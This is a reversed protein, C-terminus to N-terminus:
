ALIEKRSVVAKVGAIAEVVVKEGVAIKVGHAAKASWVAGMVRIQGTGCVEDIAEIVIGAAGIIRDANTATKGAEVKRRALPLLFALLLGSVFFFVALQLPFIVDCAACVLAALAGAAFWISVLGMTMAELVLMVIMLVAWVAIMAEQM